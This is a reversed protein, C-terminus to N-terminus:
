LYRAHCHVGTLVFHRGNRQTKSTDTFIFNQVVLLNISSYESGIESRVAAGEDVIVSIMRYFDRAWLTITLFFM